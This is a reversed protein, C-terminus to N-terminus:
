FWLSVLLARLEPAGIMEMIRGCFLGLGCVPTNQIGSVRELETDSSLTGIGQM